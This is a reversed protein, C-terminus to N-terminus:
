QAERHLLLHLSPGRLLHHGDLLLLGNGILALSSPAARSQLPHRVQPSTPASVHRPSATAIFSIGDCAIAGSLYWLGHTSAYEYKVPVQVHAAVVNQEYNSPLYGRLM